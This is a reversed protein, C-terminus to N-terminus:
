NRRKSKRKKNIKKQSKNNGGKFDIPKYPTSLNLITNMNKFIDNFKSSLSIDKLKLKDTSKNQLFLYINEVYKIISHSILAPLIGWLKSITDFVGDIKFETLKNDGLNVEVKKKCIYPINCFHTTEYKIVNNLNPIFATSAKMMFDGNNCINIYNNGILHEVEDIFQQNGISPMGFLCMFYKNYQNSELDYLCIHNDRVLKMVFLVCLIAGLSHGSFIINNYGETIKISTIMTNLDEYITNILTILEPLISVQGSLHSKYFILMDLGAEDINCTGRFTVFLNNNKRTLLISVPKHWSALYDHDAKAVNKKLQEEWLPYDKKRQEDNMRAPSILDEYKVLHIQEDIGSGIASHGLCKHPCMALLLACDTYIYLNLLAIEYIQQFIEDLM